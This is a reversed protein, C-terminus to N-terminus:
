TKKYTKTKIYINKKKDVTEARNWFEERTVYIRRNATQPLFTYNADDSRCRFASFATPQEHCPVDLLFRSELQFRRSFKERDNTKTKSLALWVYISFVDYKEREAKSMRVYKYCCANLRNAKWSFIEHACKISM